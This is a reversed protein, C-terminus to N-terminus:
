RVEIHARSRQQKLWKALLDALRQARLQDRMVDHVSPDYPPLKPESARRAAYAKEIEDDTITGVQPALEHQALKAILIQRRLEERYLARTFHYTALAQDLGADDLGNQKKIEAYAADIEADNTSLGLLKAARLQLTSDILGDLATRRQEATPQDVHQEALADDVASRWIPTGDVLAAVRDIAATAGIPPREARAVGVLVVLLAWSRM